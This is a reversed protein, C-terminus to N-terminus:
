PIHDRHAIRGGLFDVHLGMRDLQHAAGVEPGHVAAQPQISASQTSAKLYLHLM